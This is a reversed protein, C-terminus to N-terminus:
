WLRRVKVKLDRDPPVSAGGCWRGDNEAPRDSEKGELDVWGVPTVEFRDVMMAVTLMIQQKAFFRGPCVPPGGGYPFFDNVGAALQFERKGEKNIKIHREAWFENAPHGKVGWIKEDHHVIDTAAQLVAGEPLAVGAITLPGTVQRTVNMSVHLRLNETYISQLLPLSLLASRNIKTKSSDLYLPASALETRVAALLTPSRLIELLCWATIPISNANAGFITLTGFGGAMTRLSFGANRMWRVFERSYRSGFIPEWEPNDQRDWDFDRIARDLYGMLANQFRDRKDYNSSAMWRPLGWALKAAILDFDWLLPNLNPVEKMIRTGNVAKTVAACMDSLLFKYISITKEEGIPFGELVNNFNEEFLVSLNESEQTRTLHTSMVTHLGHWIRKEEPFDEYGPLPKPLRGSKDNAFKAIDEKSAGWISDKLTLFFLDCGVNASARFINQINEAGSILYTNYPGLQFQVMGMKPLLKRAKAFFARMNTMYMITVSVVPIWGSVVPVPSKAPRTALRIAVAVSAAVLTWVLRGYDTPFKVFQLVM